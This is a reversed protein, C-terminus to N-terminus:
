YDPNRLELQRLATLTSRIADQASDSFPGCGFLDLRQLKQLNTFALLATDTLQACFLMLLTTLNTFTNAIVAADNDKLAKCYSLNLRVLKSSLPTLATLDGSLM